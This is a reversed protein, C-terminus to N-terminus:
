LVLAHAPIHLVSLDQITLDRNGTWCRHYVAFLYTSDAFRTKNQDTQIIKTMKKLGDDPGQNEYLYVFISVFM